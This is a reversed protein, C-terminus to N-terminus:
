YKPNLKKLYEDSILEFFLKKEILHGENILTEKNNFFDQLGKTKHCDIDIISGFIENSKADNSIQLTSVFKGQNFETRIVSKQSKLKKNDLNIELKINNFIDENFFNIYRIGLREVENIIKLEEIKNLIEFIKSSFKKWGLYKPYSGIALVDPGIQIVFEDNSIRYLPKYKLNPDSMRIPEPIQLIPLDEIKSFDSKLANYIIGFIANQHIKSTFRIEILADIIPCNEISKPLTNTIM